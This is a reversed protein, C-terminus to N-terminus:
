TDFELTKVTKPIYETRETISAHECCHILFDLIRDCLKDFEEVLQVRSKLCPTSWEAFDANDDIGMGPHTFTQWIPKELDERTDKGCKGCRSDGTEEITKYNPQWCSTCRSKYGSDKRGGCYLVLYGSSKGNFGVQHQYDRSISFEEILHTVEDYFEETQIIDYAKDFDVPLNHLKVNNAYSTANNWSNMTNYRFHNELFEILQQRSGLKRMIDENHFHGM